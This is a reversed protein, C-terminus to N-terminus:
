RGWDRAIGVKEVSDGRFPRIKTYNRPQITAAGLAYTGGTLAGLRV